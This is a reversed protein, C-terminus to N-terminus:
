LIIGIYTVVLFFLPQLIDDTLVYFLIKWLHLFYNGSVVLWLCYNWKGSSLGWLMWSISFYFPQWFLLIPSFLIKEWQWLSFQYFSLKIKFHLHCQDTQSSFYIQAFFLDASWISVIQFIQFSCIGCTGVAAKGLAHPPIINIYSSSSIQQFGPFLSNLRFDYPFTSKEM